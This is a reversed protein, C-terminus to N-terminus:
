EPALTIITPVRDFMWFAIPMLILTATFAWAVLMWLLSAWWGIVVFWIARLPFPIRSRQQILVMGNQVMLRGAPAPRLTMIQPVRNLMWLGLPLLLITLNFLWAFITWVLGLWWGIFFFWVARILLHVGDTMVPFTMLQNMLLSPGGVTQIVTNNVMVQGAPTSGLPAACYVCYRAGAPNSRQCRGCAPATTTPPSAITTPSAATTPTRFAVTGGTAPTSQLATGCVRCFKAQSDNRTDCSTCLM